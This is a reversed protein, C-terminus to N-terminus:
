FRIPEGFANFYITGCVCNAHLPPIPDDMPHMYSAYEDCIDCPCTSNRFTMFGQAREMEAKLHRDYMWGQGIGFRTLTNIANYMSNSKGRGYSLPAAIGEALLQNAYPHKLNEGISKVLASEAIGLFLGAGVLLMLEDRYKGCYDNLREAFTMGHNKAFVYPLIQDRTEEHEAIALTLFYDSITERLWEVVAEIEIQVKTPLDEYSGVTPRIKASYLIEVIREAAERMVIELNYTMSREADLRQRLYEKAAEIDAERPRQM